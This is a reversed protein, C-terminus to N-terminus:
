VGAVDVKRRVECWRNGDEEVISYKYHPDEFHLQEVQCGKEQLKLTFPDLHLVGCLSGQYPLIAPNVCVDCPKL